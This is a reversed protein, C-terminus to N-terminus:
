KLKERIYKVKNRNYCLGCTLCSKAGCNITVGQEKIQKENYVTFVKDVFKPLKEIDVQKGLMPSSFVIQMNKPIQYGQEIASELYRLNKTWLACRVNPNHKAIKIYNIAQTTGALDGFSEFRFYMTPIIPLEDDNLIRENLNKTNAQLRRELDARMKTFKVAFCRSCILDGNNRRALCHKNLNVSTSVGFLGSMKGTHGTTYHIGAITNNKVSLLNEM